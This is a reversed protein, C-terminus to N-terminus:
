YGLKRLKSESMGFYHGIEHLLTKKIEEVMKDRDSTLAEINKQFLTIKDPLVGAYYNDRKDLPVGQYLGLLLTKGRKAPREDDITIEVNELHELFEEPLSDIADQVVQEFEDKTM